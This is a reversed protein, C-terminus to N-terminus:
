MLFSVQTFSIRANNELDLATETTVTCGPADFVIPEIGHRGSSNKALIYYKDDLSFAQPPDPQPMDEDTTFSHYGLHIFLVISLLMERV